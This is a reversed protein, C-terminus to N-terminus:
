NELRTLVDGIEAGTSPCSVLGRDRPGFRFRFDSTLICFYFGLAVLNVETNRSRVESKEKGEERVISLEGDDNKKEWSCRM